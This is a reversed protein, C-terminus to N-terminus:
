YAPCSHSYISMEGAALNMDLDKGQIQIKELCGTMFQSGTGDEGLLGGISLSGVRWTDSYDPHSELSVPIKDTGGGDLHVMVADMQFTIMLRKSTPKISIKDVGFCTLTVEKTSKNAVLSFFPHQGPNKISCITGEIESFDGWFEINVGQDTETPFVSANFIAFGKGPFYSGPKINEHCPWLEDAETEWLVTLNLWNGERVCGDMQPKFKVIMQDKNILIGGLALRLKGLPVEEEFKPQLGVTLQQTSDVELIVFKGQNSVEMTHWKGDNLKPGGAVSLLMGEKSIQMLPFGDKLSLVFWDEGGKTDGYFITGEPDFTRLQFISKISRIESLNVTTQTLPRWIDRDQGLYFNGGGSIEKGRGNGQGEARQGLLTLSLPLLLGSAIVKWIGAMRTHIRGSVLRRTDVRSLGKTPQLTERLHKTSRHAAAVTDQPGSPLYPM